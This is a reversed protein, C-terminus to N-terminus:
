KKKKFFFAKTDPRDLQNYIMMLFSIAQVMSALFVQIDTEAVDLGIASLLLFLLAAGNKSIM